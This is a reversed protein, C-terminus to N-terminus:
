SAADDAPEVLETAAPGFLAMLEDYSLERTKQFVMPRPHDYVTLSEDARGLNLARRREEDRALLAPKPLDPQRFTEDVLSLGFLEPYVEAHYVLEFGLQEGLLLQYYRTSFPYRAPLRPITNSLRNTSLIVYDCRQLAEFLADRKAPTDANYAPFVSFRQKRFCGLAGGGQVMPLPDDWHEILLNSNAPLHQCLWQTAQIWAHPQRYIATFALAYGTTGGLVVVAGGIALVKTWWGRRQAARLARDGLWGAWLCLFPVIPLMYRLFKAHFSGVIGFYAGVWAFPLLLAGFWAVNRRWARQGLHALAGVLGAASWVGLPLGLSWVGLQQLPYLYPLTGTFQRTYPIDALGRAMYSETLIDRAFEVMDILAYPELLLFTVAALLGSLACGVVARWWIAGRSRGLEGATQRTTRAWASFLWALFVVGLLPAASVKTALAAGTVLGLGWVRKLTPEQVLAVGLYVGWIVFFALLTDVAYFHALQIHLVAITVLLAGLVGSWEGYLRRGLRYVLHVTGLDFLASLGRGVLYSGELTVVSPVVLGILNSLLRLLYLPLSGYAFFGPNWPSEPSLLLTLDPPWPFSLRDTVMLIQREDPHFLYGGDWQIGAVRLYLALAMIAVM